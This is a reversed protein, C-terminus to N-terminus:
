EVILKGVMGNARHSGVSCYYEFIGTKDAIFTVNTTGGTQVRATRADFEDVVWDHFGEDSIFNIVVTDGKKVKIEKVDFAFNTGTLNFVQTSINSVDVDPIPFEMQIDTNLQAGASNEAPSADVTGSGGDEIAPTIEVVSEPVLVEDTSRLFLYGVFALVAFTLLLPVTKM